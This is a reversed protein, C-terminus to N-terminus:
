DRLFDEQYTANFGSSMHFRRLLNGDLYDALFGSIISSILLHFSLNGDHLENLLLRQKISTKGYQYRKQMM